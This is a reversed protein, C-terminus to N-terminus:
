AADDGTIWAPPNPWLQRITEDASLGLLPAVHSRIFNYRRRLQMRVWEDGRVTGAVDASRVASADFERLMRYAPTLNYNHAPRPTPRRAARTAAARQRNRLETASRVAEEHALRIRGNVIGAQVDGHHAYARPTFFLTKTM